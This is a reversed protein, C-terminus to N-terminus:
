VVPRLLPEDRPVTTRGLVVQRIADLVSEHYASHDGDPVSILTPPIAADHLRRLAGPGGASSFLDADEPALVVTVKTDQRTLAGIVAEPSQSVGLHGLLRAAFRPTGRRLARKLAARSRKSEAMVRSRWKEVSGVDAGRGDHAAALLSRKYNWQRPWTLSTHWSWTNTSVMTVEGSRVGRAAQAAYWSGSCVGVTHLMSPQDTAHRAVAVSDAVDAKTFIPLWLDRSASGSQGLGMRDWRVAESGAAALRRSLEVWERAPGIHTDNATAFFLVVRPRTAQPQVPKTRIAFLGKPGVREIHEAVTATGTPADVPLVASNRYQPTVRARAPCPAADIWEVMSDVAALPMPAMVDASQAFEALGHATITQIHDRGALDRILREPEPRIVLLHDVNDALGLKLASFETAAHASLRAGVISVAASPLPDAGVVLRFLATQERLYRSGTGVPDFYALRDVPTGNDVADSLILSGARFGVAITSPSGIDRLYGVAYDVSLRWNRVSDDRLQSYASDGTGLYDFRLVGFGRIALEEALIRQLRVSDMAEKGLSGCIVVGGKIEGDCPLHLVGFLPSEAPGFFTPRETSRVQKAVRTRMGTIVLGNPYSHVVAV